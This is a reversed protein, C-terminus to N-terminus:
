ELQAPPHSPEVNGVIADYTAPGVAVAQCPTMWQMAPRLRYELSLGAEAQRTELLGKAVLRRVVKSRLQRDTLGIQELMVKPLADWGENRQVSRLGSRQVLVLMMGVAPGGIEALPQFMGEAVRAFGQKRDPQKLARTAAKKLKGAQSRAAYKSVQGLSSKGVM